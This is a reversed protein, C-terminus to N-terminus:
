TKLNVKGLGDFRGLQDNSDGAQGASPLSEAM